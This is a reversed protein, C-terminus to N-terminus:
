SLGYMSPMVTVTLSSIDVDAAALTFELHQTIKQKTEAYENMMNMSVAVSEHLTDLGLLYLPYHAFSDLVVTASSQYPIVIPRSSKAVPTLDTDFTTLYLMFKGHHMNRPSKPLALSVDISYYTGHQLFRQRSWSARQKALKEIMTPDQLQESATHMSQDLPFEEAAVYQWQRQHSFLDVRAIPQSANSYDFYIPEDLLAKPVIRSRLFWYGLVAFLVIGVLVAMFLVLYLLVRAFNESIRTVVEFAMHSVHDVAQRIM